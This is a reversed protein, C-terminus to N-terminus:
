NMLPNSGDYVVRINTIKTNNSTIEWIFAIRSPQDEGDNFYAVFVMKNDKSTPLGTFGRFPTNERIKPLKVDSHLYTKAKEDKKEIIAQMFNSEINPYQIATVNLTNLLLISLFIGLIESIFGIRKM